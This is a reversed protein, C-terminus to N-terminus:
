RARFRLRIGLDAGWGRIAQATLTGEDLELGDEVGGIAWIQRVADVNAAESREGLGLLDLDRTSRALEGDWLRFLMAGKLVFRDSHESRGLRYLFRELSYLVLTQQM